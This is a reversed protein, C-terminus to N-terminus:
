PSPDDETEFVRQVQERSAWGFSVAVVPEKDKSTQSVSLQISMDRLRVEREKPEKAETPEPPRHSPPTFRPKKSPPRKLKATAPPVPVFSAKENDNRENAAQKKADSKEEKKESKEEKKESKEEKKESKDGSELQPLEVPALVVSTTGSKQEVPLGVRMHGCGSVHSSNGDQHIAVLGHAMRTVKTQARVVVFQVLKKDSREDRGAYVKVGGVATGVLKLPLSAKGILKAGKTAPDVWADVSELTVNGNSEVVRESHIAAVGSMPNEKQQPWLTAEWQFSQDWEPTPRADDDDDHGFRMGMM